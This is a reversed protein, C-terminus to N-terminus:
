LILGKTKTGQLYHYIRKVAHGHCVKPNHTLWACQHVVNAIEPHSNVALYLLMGVVSSYSWNEACSEGEKDTGLTKQAAPTKDPNCEQLGIANLEKKILGTRQMQIEGSLLCNIQIGLFITVDGQATMELGDKLSELM